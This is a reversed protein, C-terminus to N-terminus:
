KDTWIPVTKRILNPYFLSIMGNISHENHDFFFHPYIFAAANKNTWKKLSPSIKIDSQSQLFMKLSKTVATPLLIEKLYSRFKFDSNKLRITGPPGQLDVSEISYSEVFEFNVLDNILSLETTYVTVWNFAIVIRRERSDTVFFDCLTHLSQRDSDSIVVPVWQDKWSGSLVPPVRVKGFQKRIELYSDISKHKLSRLAGAENLKFRVCFNYKNYWLSSRQLSKNVSLLDM